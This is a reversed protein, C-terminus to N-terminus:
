QMSITRCQGVVFYVPGRSGIAALVVDAVGLEEGLLDAGLVGAPLLASARPPSALDIELVDLVGDGIESSEVSNDSYTSFFHRKRRKFLPVM